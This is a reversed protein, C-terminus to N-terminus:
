TRFFDKLLARFTDETVIKKWRRSYYVMVGSGALVAGATFASVLEVM